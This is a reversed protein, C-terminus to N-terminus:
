YIVVKGSKSLGESTLLYYYVGAKTGTINWVYQGMNGHVNFRYVVKGTIDSITVLGSSHETMLEYNFAVFTHAPNPETSIKLLHDEPRNNVGSNFYSKLYVSDTTQLCNCYHHVNTYELINRALNGAYTSSDAAFDELEATELSDLDGTMNGQSIWSIQMEVLNKYNNYEELKEGTLEYLSPLMNLLTIANATDNESLYSSIIQRDTVMSNMNGLWNRYEVPDFVTDFMINRIMDQAAQTKGAHYRAMEEELITKYTVGEIAQQLISIMYEPLPNEKQELYTLLTDRNLEDPNASLIELLINDPFIDTRDSVARLVEQSLHPSHGLLQNRLEWMDAEEATQIDSLEAEPDGGDMLSEYLYEVSNYDNLNQFFATEKADKENADLVIHGTNGYHDPCNYASSKIKEFYEPRFTFINVPEEDTCSDCYYYNITSYGENRFHWVSQTYRSFVNGSATDSKGHWGRIKAFNPNADTVIFDVANHSNYNCQYEVGTEDIGSNSRNTGQAYNGYSLGILENKYVIDHVSPCSFVRIGAYVGNLAQSNKRLSNNEVVFGNSTQIDIGVGNAFGCNGVYPADYGVELFNNIVIAYDTASLYIGFNNDDFHAESILVPYDILTSNFSGIAKEFGNFRCSDVLPCPVVQIHCTPLVNFGANYAAIGLNWQSVNTAGHDLSFICGYFKIGSVRDIDVHKYFTVDGLYETNIIFSCDTFTGFYDMEFNPYGPNFNRYYIAHVSRANNLFVADDADIIGGTMNYDGPKWLDVATVANEITAGNLMLLKGQAGQTYQSSNRNGWIEFGPWLSNEHGCFKYNTITGGNIEVEAGPRIIFKAQSGMSVTSTITLKSGPEVVIDHLSIVPEDWTTNTNISIPEKLELAACVAAYTNIRGFGHTCNWGDVYGLSGVKEATSKMLEEVTYNTLYPNVSLMLAATAAVMPASFSTGEWTDWSCCDLTVIDVGPATLDMEPGCNSACDECLNPFLAREDDRDTAGVAVVFEDNAPFPLYNGYGENGASAVILVNHDMYAHQLAAHISPQLGPGGVVKFTIVIINAGMEEAAYDIAAAVYESSFTMVCEQTMPNIRWDFLKLPLIKVGKINEQYNGGAIGAIDFDNNTKAAIIGSVATGHSGWNQEPIVSNNQEIHPSPNAEYNCYNWGKWDDIKGNADDDTSNGDSPDDWDDWEDEGDNHFVNEWSYGPYGLIDEHGLFLGEDLVAVTIDEDGFTIDWAEPVDIQDLYWQHLFEDDDPIFGYLELKFSFSINEVRSDYYISDCVEIFNSTESLGYTFYGGSTECKFSLNYDDRFSEREPTTILDSFKITITHQNVWFTDSEFILNYEGSSYYFLYEGISDNQSYTNIFLGITFILLVFKKM